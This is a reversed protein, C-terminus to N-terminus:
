ATQEEELMRLGEGTALRRNAELLVGRARALTARTATIKHNTQGKADFLRHHLERLEDVAVAVHDRVPEDGPLAELMREAERWTALVDEIQSTM